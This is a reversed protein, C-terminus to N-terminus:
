NQGLCDGQKHKLALLQQLVFSEDLEALQFQSKPLDTSSNYSLWTTTVKEALRKGIFVHWDM